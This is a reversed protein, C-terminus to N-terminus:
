GGGGHEGEGCVGGRFGEEGGGEEGAAVERRRWLEKCWRGLGEGYRSENDRGGGGGPILLLQLDVLGEARRGRRDGGM